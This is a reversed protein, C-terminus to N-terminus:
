SSMGGANQAQSVCLVFQTRSSGKVDRPGDRIDAQDHDLMGEGLSLFSQAECKKGDASPSVAFEMSRAMSIAGRIPSKKPYDPSFNVYEDLDFVASSPSPTLTVYSMLTAPFPTDDTSFVDDLIAAADHLLQNSSRSNESLLSDSNLCLAEPEEYDAYTPDFPVSSPSLIFIDPINTLEPSTVPTPPYESVLPSSSPSPAASRSRSTRLGTDDENEAQIQFPIEPSSRDEFNEDESSSVSDQSSGELLEQEGHPATVHETVELQDVACSEQVPLVTEVMSSMELGTALPKAIAKVFSSNQLASEKLYNVRDLEIAVELAAQLHKLGLQDAMSPVGPVSAPVDNIISEAHTSELPEVQSPRPSTRALPYPQHRHEGRSNSINARSRESSNSELGGDSGLIPTRPKGRTSPSGDYECEFGRNQCRTCPFGGCCKTKRKRCKNCAKASRQRLMPAYQMNAQQTTWAVYPESRNTSSIQNYYLFQAPRVNVLPEAPASYYSEPAVPTTYGASAMHQAYMPLLPHERQPLSTPLATNIYYPAASPIQHTNNSPDSPVHVFGLPPDQLSPFPVSHHGTSREHMLQAQQSQLITARLLNLDITVADGHGPVSIKVPSALPPASAVDSTNTAGLTPTAM